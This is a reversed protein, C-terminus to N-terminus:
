GIPIVSRDCALAKLSTNISFLVCCQVYYQMYVIARLRCCFTGLLMAFNM